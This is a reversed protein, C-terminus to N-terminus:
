FRIEQSYVKDEFLKETEFTRHKQSIAQRLFSEAKWPHSMSPVYRKKPKQPM